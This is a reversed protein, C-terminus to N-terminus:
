KPRLADVMARIMRDDGRPAFHVERVGTRRVLPLVNHPRIGGGALITIASGAHAVLKALTAAGEEATPAGGSTLARVVGCRRLVVVADALHPTQDLCRHCSVPVPGAQRVVERLRGEDMTGDPRLCGTVIGAVGREACWRVSALLDAFEAADYIFDGARPRVLVHVPLGVALVAHLLEADPTLGGVALNVCLEVRDAGADAAQRAQAATEVCVELRVREAM